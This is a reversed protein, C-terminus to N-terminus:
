NIAHNFFAEHHQTAHRIMDKTTARRTVDGFQAIARCDDCNQAAPPLAHGGVRQGGAKRRERMIEAAKAKRAREAEREKRAWDRAEAREEASAALEALKIKSEAELTALKLTEIRSIFDLTTPRPPEQSRSIAEAAEADIRARRERWRQFWKWV